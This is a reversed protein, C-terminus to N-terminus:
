RIQIQRSATQQRSCLPRLGVPSCHALPPPARYFAERSLPNKDSLRQVDSPSCIESQFPSNILGERSETRCVSHSEAFAKAWEWKDQFTDTDATM